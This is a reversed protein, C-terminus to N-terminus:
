PRAGFMQSIIDPDVRQVMTTQVTVVAPAVAAAASTIANRRSESVSAATTSQTQQASSTKPQQSCGLIFTAIFVRAITKMVHSLTRGSIGGSGSVVRTPRGATFGRPQGHRRDPDGHGRAPAKGLRHRADDRRSLAGHSPSLPESEGHLAAGRAARDMAIRDRHM